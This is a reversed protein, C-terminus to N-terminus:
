AEFVAELGDWISPFTSELPWPLQILGFASCRSPVAYPRTNESM